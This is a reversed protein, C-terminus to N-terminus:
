SYCQIKKSKSTLPNFTVPNLCYATLVMDICSSSVVEDSDQSGKAIVRIKSTMPLFILAHINHETSIKCTGNAQYDDIHYEPQGLNTEMVITYM